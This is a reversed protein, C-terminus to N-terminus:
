NSLSSVKTVLSLLYRMIVLLIKFSSYYIILKIVKSNLISRFFSDIMQYINGEPSMNKKLGIIQKFHLFM